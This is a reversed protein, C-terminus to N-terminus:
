GALTSFPRTNISIQGLHALGERKGGTGLHEPGFLRKSPAQGLEAVLHADPIPAAVVEGHQLSGARFERRHGPVDSAPEGIGSPGILQEGRCPLRDLDALAEIDRAEIQVAGPETIASQRNTQTFGHRAGHPELGAIREVPDSIEGFRM